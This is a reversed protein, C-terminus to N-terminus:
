VGFSQPRISLIIGQGGRYRAPTGPMIRRILSYNLIPIFVESGNVYGEPEEDEDFRFWVGGMHVGSSTRETGSYATIPLNIPLNTPNNRSGTGWQFDLVEATVKAQCVLNPVTNTNYRTTILQM